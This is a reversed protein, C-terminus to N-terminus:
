GFRQKALEKLGKMVGEERERYERVREEREAARARAVEERRIERETKKREERAKMARYEAVSDGGGMLEQEGVEVQGDGSKDAFGKMKDNVLARKELKRERTGADARPVLEDLRERQQKRDDKRQARLDEVQAERERQADETLNERRLSLDALSPIGPGSRQGGERATPPLMPGLDDNDDDDDDREEEGDDDVDEETRGLPADEPAREKAAMFMEPDYWGSSLEGRNWKGMFSKWRGRVEREDMDRMDKQKQLDLYYALLPRFVDLDNKSLARADYPLAAAASVDKSSRASSERPNDRHHHRHSRHRHHHRRGQDREEEDSRRPRKAQHEEDVPSRRRVDGRRREPSRSRSRNRDEPM